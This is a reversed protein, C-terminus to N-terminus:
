VYRIVILAVACSTTLIIMPIPRPSEAVIPAAITLVRATVNCIGLATAGFLTPFLECTSCYLLNFGGSIGLKTIVVFCSLLWALEPTEDIVIIGIGGGVAFSLLLQFSKKIGLKHYIFGSCICALVDAGGSCFTNTFINGPMYKIYYILMYYSFSCNAWQFSMVILNTKIYEQKLYFKASRFDEKAQLDNVEPIVSLEDRTEEYNKELKKIEQECEFGNTKALTRLSRNAELLKGAKLQWLISEPVFLFSLITSLGALCIGVIVIYRYHKNIFDFYVSEIMITSNDLTM